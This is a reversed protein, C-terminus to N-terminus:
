QFWYYGWLDVVGHNTYHSTTSTKGATYGIAHNTYHSTTSTKGATYGISIAVMRSLM